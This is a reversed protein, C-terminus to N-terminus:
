RCAERRQFEPVPIKAAERREMHRRRVAHRPKCVHMRWWTNCLMHSKGGGVM